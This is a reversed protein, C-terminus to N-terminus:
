SNTKNSFFSKYIRVFKKELFFSLFIQELTTQSITYTEINLREKNEELLQFLETPTLCRRSRRSQRSERDHDRGHTVM